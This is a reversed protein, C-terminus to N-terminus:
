IARQPRDHEVVHRGAAADTKALFNALDAMSMRNFEVHISSNDPGPLVRLGHAGVLMAASGDQRKSGGRGGAEPLGRKPDGSSPQMESPSPRLKAGAKAVVLVKVDEEKMERHITLHFRDALLSQLMAPTDEKRSGAPLKSIVDFSATGLWGQGSIQSSKVEYAAAILQRLTMHIYEATSGNIRAGVRLQGATLRRDFEADDIATPKISAVEFEPRRTQQGFTVCCILLAAARCALHAPRSYKHLM